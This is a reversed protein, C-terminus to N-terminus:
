ILNKIFSEVTIKENHLKMLVNFIKGRIKDKLYEHQEIVIKEILEGFEDLEKKNSNWHIAWVKKECDQSNITLSDIFSQIKEGILTEIPARDRFKALRKRLLEFKPDEAILKAKERNNKSDPKHAIYYFEYKLKIPLWKEGDIIHVVYGEPEIIEDGEILRNYNNEFYEMLEEWTDFEVKNNVFDEPEPLSYQKETNEFVTHGIFPCWAKGYFVTLEPTPIADIAEFHLTVCKKELGKKTLYNEVMEIFNDMNQYSGNVANHIRSKVPEKAIFRGKSGFFLKGYKCRRECYVGDFKPDPIFTLNFLSGDYKPTLILKFDKKFEVYKKWEPRFNWVSELYPYCAPDKEISAFDPFVPLSGRILHWENTEKNLAFSEGRYDRTPGTFIQFGDLYNLTVIKYYQNNFEEAVNVIGPPFQNIIQYPTFGMRLAPGQVPVSPVILEKLFRNAIVPVLSSDGIGIDIELPDWIGTELNVKPFNIKQDPYKSYQGTKPVFEAGLENQPFLYVGIKLASSYAARADEPLNELTNKWALGFLTQMTDIVVVKVEPDELEDSIRKLFLKQVQEKGNELEGVFKYTELYNGGPFGNDKAVQYYCQDREIVSANPISRSFTSKGCGSTGLPLIVVKDNSTKKQICIKRVIETNNELQMRRIFDLSHQIIEDENMKEDCDRSLMDAAFLLGLARICLDKNEDPLTLELLSKFQTLVNLDKQHSCCCMHNNTTFTLIEKNDIPMRSILYSGIQAHGIFSVTKKAQFRTFPKGIDHLLGINYALDEPIDFQPSLRRCNEACRILHDYLTERHHRNPQHPENRIATVIFEPLFDM